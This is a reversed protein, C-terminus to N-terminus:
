EISATVSYDTYHGHLLSSLQSITTLSRCLALSKDKMWLLWVVPEPDVMGEVRDTGPARETTTFCGPTIIFM